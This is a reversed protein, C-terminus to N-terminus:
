TPPYTIVGYRVALSVAELKSHAGLKSLVSQAYNRVTNVSLYMDEAIAKNTMGRAMRALVDRERDTLNAGPPEASRGLLPLLRALTPASILAEGAAATRVAAAVESAARDKTLFGSCGAQIAALMLQDDDTGTLIIVALSPRAALMDRALAVGDVDPLHYDLLAVDSPADTVLRRATAASAALGVVTIDSEDDLLRALSQAFMLHDDVIIVRISEDVM